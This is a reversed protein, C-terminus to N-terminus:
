AALGALEKRVERNIVGIAEPKYQQWTKRFGLRPPIKAKRKLVWLALTDDRGNPQDLFIVGNHIFPSGVSPDREARDFLARASPYRIDGAETLNDGLPITLFRSSKPTITGGEEQIRAYPVGAFFTSLAVGRTGRRQVLYGYSDKLTGTRSFLFNRARSGPNGGASLASSPPRFRKKMRRGIEQGIRKLAREGAAQFRRPAKRALRSAARTDFRAVLSGTM